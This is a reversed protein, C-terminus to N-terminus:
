DTYSKVDYVKIILCYWSGFSNVNELIWRTRMKMVSMLRKLTKGRKNWPRNSTMFVLLSGIELILHLFWKRWIMKEVTRNDVTGRQIKGGRRGCITQRWQISCMFFRLCWILALNVDKRRRIQENNLITEKFVYCDKIVGFIVDNIIYKLIM